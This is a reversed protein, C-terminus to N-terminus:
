VKVQFNFPYKEKFKLADGYLEDVSSFNKENFVLKNKAVIKLEPVEIDKQEKIEEASSHQAGFSHLDLKKITVTSIAFLLFIILSVMADLIPVINIDDEIESHVPERK